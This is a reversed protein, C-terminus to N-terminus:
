VPRRRAEQAGYSSGHPPEEGPVACQGQPPGTPKQWISKGSGKMSLSDLILGAVRLGVQSKGTKGMQTWLAATRSTGRDPASAPARVERGAPASFAKM